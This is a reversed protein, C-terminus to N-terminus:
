GWLLAAGARSGLTLAHETELAVGDRLGRRSVCAPVGDALTLLESLIATAILISGARRPDVGREVLEEESLGVHRDLSRDLDAPTVPGAGGHSPLEHMALRRAARASGSGLVLVEPGFARARRMAKGAERRVLKQVEHLLFHDVTAGNMAARVRLAGLPLSETASCRTGRGLALEVSGGGLDVVAVRKAALEPDVVQGVYALRAEEDPGVIRVSLRNGQEIERVLELGNAASRIASTAVVTLHEPGRARAAAVLETATEVSEAFADPDLVGSRFVREGLCLTRKEDHTPTVTGGDGVEFHELHFTTSGLDLVAIQM